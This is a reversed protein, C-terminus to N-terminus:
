GGTLFSTVVFTGRCWMIVQDDTIEPWEDGAPRRCDASTPDDFHGTVLAGGTAVEPPTPGGGETWNGRFNVPPSISPDAVYLGPSPTLMEYGKGPDVLFLPGYEPPSVLRFRQPVQVPVVDIVVNGPVVMAAVTLTTSGYCAM